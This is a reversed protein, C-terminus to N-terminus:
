TKLSHIKALAVLNAAVIGAHWLAFLIAAPLTTQAADDTPVMLKNAFAFLVLTWLTCFVLGIIAGWMSGRIEGLSWGLMAGDVVTALILAFAIGVLLLFIAEGGQPGAGPKTKRLWRLAFFMPVASGVVFLHWLVWWGSGFFFTVIKV